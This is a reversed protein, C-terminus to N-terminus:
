LDLTESLNKYITQSHISKQTSKEFIMKLEQLYNQNIQVLM